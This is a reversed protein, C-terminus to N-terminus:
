LGQIVIKMSESPSPLPVGELPSLGARGESPAGPIQYDLERAGPHWALPTSGGLVVLTGTVMKGTPGLLLTNSCKQSVARHGWAGARPTSLWVGTM